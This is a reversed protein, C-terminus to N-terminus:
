KFRKVILILQINVYQMIYLKLTYHYRIKRYVLGFPRKISAKETKGFIMILYYDKRDVEYM